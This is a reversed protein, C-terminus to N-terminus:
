ATPRHACKCQASFGSPTCCSDFPVSKGDHTAGWWWANSQSAFKSHPDLSSVACGFHCWTDPYEAAGDFPKEGLQVWGAKGWHLRANCRERCVLM